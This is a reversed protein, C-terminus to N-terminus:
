RAQRKESPMVDSWIFEECNPTRRLIGISVHVCRSNTTHGNHTSDNAWQSSAKATHGLYTANDSSIGDVNIGDIVNYSETAVIVGGWNVSIPTDPRCTTRKTTGDRQFADSAHHHHDTSNLEGRLPKGAGM